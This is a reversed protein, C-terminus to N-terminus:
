ITGSPETASPFMISAKPAQGIVGSTPTVSPTPRGATVERPHRDSTHDVVLDVIVLM